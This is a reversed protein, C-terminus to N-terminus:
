CEIKVVKEEGRDFRKCAIEKKQSFLITFISKKYIPSSTCYLSNKNTGHYDVDM